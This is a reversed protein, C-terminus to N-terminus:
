DVFIGTFEYFPSPRLLAGHIVTMVSEKLFADSAVIM